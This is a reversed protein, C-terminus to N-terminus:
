RKEAWSLQVGQIITISLQILAPSRNRPISLKLAKLLAFLTETSPANKSFQINLCNALEKTNLFLKHFFTLLLNRQIKNRLLNIWILDILAWGLQFKLIWKFRLNLDVLGWFVWDFDDTLECYHLKLIFRWKVSLEKDWKMGDCTGCISPLTFKLSLGLHKVNSLWM